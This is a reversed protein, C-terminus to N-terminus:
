FSGPMPNYKRSSAFFSTGVEIGGLVVDCFVLSWEHRPLMGLAVEASRAQSVVWGEAELVQAVLDSIQPEDDIVLAYNQSPVAAIRDNM